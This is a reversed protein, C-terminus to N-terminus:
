SGLPGAPPLPCELDVAARLARLFTDRPVEVCGLSALHPSQVQVDFIRFHADRLLGVLTAFAIKSADTARYFMSEGSFSGGVSVGYIGGVLATGDWVEVSHAWGMRHLKTYGLRLEDTIWTGGDRDSCADLVEAFATDFTLTYPHNRLTRRLSRSWSPEADLPFV